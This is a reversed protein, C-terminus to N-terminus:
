YENENHSCVKIIDNSVILHKTKKPTYIVNIQVFHYLNEIKLKYVLFILILFHMFLNGEYLIRFQVKESCEYSIFLTLFKIKLFLNGASSCFIFHFDIIFYIENRTNYPCVKWFMFITVNVSKWYDGFAPQIFKFKRITQLSMHCIYGLYGVFINM